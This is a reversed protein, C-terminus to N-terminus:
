FKGSRAKQKKMKKYNLKKIKNLKKNGELQMLSDVKKREEEEKNKNKKQKRKKGTIVLSGVIM